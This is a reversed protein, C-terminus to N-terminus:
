TPKSELDAYDNSILAYKATLQQDTDFDLIVSKTYIAWPYRTTYERAGGTITFSM